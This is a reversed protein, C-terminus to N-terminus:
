DLIASRLIRPMLRLHPLMDPSGQGFANTFPASFISNDFDVDQRHRRFQNHFIIRNCPLDAVLHLAANIISDTNSAPGSGSTYIGKFGHEFVPVATNDRYLM